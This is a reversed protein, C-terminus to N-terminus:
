YSYKELDVKYNVVDVKQTSSWAKKEDDIIARMRVYYTGSTLIKNNDDSLVNYSSYYRQEYCSLTKTSAKSFNSSASYQIQYTVDHERYYNSDSSVPTWTLKFGNPKSECKIVNIGLSSKSTSKKTTVSKAKSWKSYLAKKGSKKYTRVRVYYKKGSKLKSITKSVTKAKTVKVTKASKFKSSTSYQIQYGTCSKKKWKVTISSSKASVSTISTASPKSAAYADVTVAFTTTIMVAISLIVALIKNVKKM